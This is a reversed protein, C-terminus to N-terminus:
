PPAGFEVLAEYEIGDTRMCAGSGDPTVSWVILPLAMGDDDICKRLFPNVCEKVITDLAAREIKAADTSSM